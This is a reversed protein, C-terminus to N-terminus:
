RAQVQHVEGSSHRTETLVANERGPMNDMRATSSNSTVPADHESAGNLSATVNIAQLINYAAEYSERLEEQSQAVAQAMGVEGVVGPPPVPSKSATWGRDEVGLTKNAKLKVVWVDLAVRLM